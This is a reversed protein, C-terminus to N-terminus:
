NAEVLIEKLKAVFNKKIVPKEIVFDFADTISQQNLYNVVHSTFAVVPMQNYKPEAKIYRGLWIGDHGGDLNVDTVVMDFIENSLSEVAQKANPVIKYSFDDLLYIELLQRNIPDDDIALIRNM